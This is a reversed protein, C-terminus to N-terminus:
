PLNREEAHAVSGRQSKSDLLVTALMRGANGTDSNFLLGECRPAM